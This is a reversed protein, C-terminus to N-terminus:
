NDLRGGRTKGEIIHLSNTAVKRVSLAPDSLCALLTPVASRAEDEFRGLAYIACYRVYESSDRASHALAPVVTNPQRKIEGLLTAADAATRPDSATLCSILGPVILDTNNGLMVTTGQLRFLSDPCYASRNTLVDLVISIGPPGTAEICFLAREATYLDTGRALQVLEPIAPSASSGLIEFAGIAGDALEKTHDFRTLDPVLGRVYRTWPAANLQMWRTLFPLANTGIARIAERQGIDHELGYGRSKGYRESIVWFSLPKGRYTPESEQPRIWWIFAAGIIALAILATKTHWKV